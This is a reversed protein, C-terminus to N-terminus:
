KKLSKKYHDVFWQHKKILMAIGTNGPEKILKQNNERVYRQANQLKMPILAPDECPQGYPFKVIEKGNGLYYDREAYIDELQDDLKLIELAMNCAEKEKGPDKEGLRAIDGVRNVLNMLQVYKEKFRTHISIEVRDPSDSWEYRFRKLPSTKAITVAPMNKQKTALAALAPGPNITISPKAAPCLKGLEELLRKEKYESRPELLARKFLLDSGYLM